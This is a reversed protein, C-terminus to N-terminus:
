FEVVEVVTLTLQGVACFTQPRIAVEVEEILAVVEEDLFM